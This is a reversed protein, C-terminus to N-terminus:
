IESTQTKVGTKMSGAHFVPRANVYNIFQTASDVQDDHTSKPFHSCEDVFDAVWPADEPLHCRGSEVVPSALHARTVKDKIPEIVLIPLRTDRKLDQIVSQGSSKDEILVANSPHANFNQVITRKLDPYELRARVVKLLYYGDDCVGWLQGVSYDNEEGTKNATDWSWYSQRIKAPTSKYYKWWERKLIGGGEPVPRQQYMSAWWYSGLNEKLKRLESEPFREQWLPEGEKRGLVDDGEALAPFVINEWQGPQEKMLMGALDADHWRTMIVIIAANPEARTLFTSLFWDWHKERITASMAEENNKILDDIIGVSFGKGTLPGGAGATMMEGGQKTRWYQAAANYGGSPWINFYQQCDTLVDRVKAGWSSAFNAEYSALIVRSQPFTGILWAPFYKSILESKGHRPPLSIILRKCRGSAVDLLKNNIIGL